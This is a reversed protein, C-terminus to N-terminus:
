VGRSYVRCFGIGSVKEHIWVGVYGEAREKPDAPNVIDPFLFGEFAPDDLFSAGDALDEQLWETDSPGIPAASKRRSPELIM